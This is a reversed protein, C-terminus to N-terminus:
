LENSVKDLVEQSMDQSSENLWILNKWSRLWTMQRKALQRTATVGKFIMEDYSINGELFECVQRYGVSRMSSVSTDMRKIKLISEVENVLGAEIMSQFRCAVNKRHLERDETQIAFQFIKFNSLKPNVEKKNEKHWDTLTKLSSEYVELARQIRQTDNPHIRRASEPDIGALKRHMEEWGLLKAQQTIKKRVTPDTEPMNSLGLFLSQFYLMTGGVLLPLKNQESATCIESLAEERFLASSYSMYPEIKNILKHPYKKLLVKSPKGSGIDLNKYIQVSDVSIIEVDLKDYLDFALSTKGIGTPGM